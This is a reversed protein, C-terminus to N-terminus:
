ECIRDYGRLLQRSSPRRLWRRGESTERAKNYFQLKEKEFYLLDVGYTQTYTSSDTCDLAIICLNSLYQRLLQAHLHRSFLFFSGSRMSSLPLEMKM